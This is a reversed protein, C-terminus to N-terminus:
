KYKQMLNQILKVCYNFSKLKMNDFGMNKHTKLYFIRKQMM